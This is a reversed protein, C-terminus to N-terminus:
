TDSIKEDQYNKFLYDSGSKFNKALFDPLPIYRIKNGKGHIKLSKNQYDCHRINTLESVRIGTYFLFDLILSNRQNIASSTKTKAQKIQELETETITDFCKQQVTPIIRNILEWEIDVKEFRAYSILACRHFQLSAPEYKM